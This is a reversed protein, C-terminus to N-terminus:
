MRVRHKTGCCARPPLANRLPAHEGTSPAFRSGVIFHCSTALNANKRQVQARYLLHLFNDRLYSIHFSRRLLLVGFPSFYPIPKKSMGSRRHLVPGSSTLQSSTRQRSLARPASVRSFVMWGRSSSFNFTQFLIFISPQHAASCSGIGKSSHLACIRM